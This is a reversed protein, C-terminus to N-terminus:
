GNDIEDHDGERVHRVSLKFGKECNPCMVVSDDFIKDMAETVLWLLQGQTLSIGRLKCEILLEKVILMTDLTNM